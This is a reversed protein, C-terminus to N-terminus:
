RTPEYQSEFITKAKIYANACDIQNPDAKCATTPQHFKKFAEAKDKERLKQLEAAEIDRRQAQQLEQAKKERETRLASQRAQSEAQAQAAARNMEKAANRLAIEVRLATIGEYTFATALAGIFVGLAIKLTDKM